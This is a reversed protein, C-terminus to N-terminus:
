IAYNLFKLASDIVTGAVVTVRDGKVVEKNDLDEGNQVLVHRM